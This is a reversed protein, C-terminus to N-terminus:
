KSERPTAVFSWGNNAIYRNPQTFISNKIDSRLDGIDSLRETLVGQIIGRTSRRTSDMIFDFVRDLSRDNISIIDNEDDFHTLGFDQNPEM